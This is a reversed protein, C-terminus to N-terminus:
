ARARSRGAAHQYEKVKRTIVELAKHGEPTHALDIFQFGLLAEDPKREAHRFQADAYLTERAPGFSLRVGVTDGADLAEAANPSVSLLFGGASLNRVQGTWVPTTSSAGSPENERGGLWFSARVVRNDPVDARTYARRQLRRMKTPRCVSLVRVAGGDDLEMTEYGAVVANFIHKHHKIKFSLGLKEAPAFEYQEGEDGSPPEIWLREDGVRLARSQLNVWRDGRRISVTMPVRKEVATDIAENVRRIDLEELTSM